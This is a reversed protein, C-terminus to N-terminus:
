VPVAFTKGPVVIGGLRTLFGDIQDSESGMLVVSASRAVAEEHVGNILASVVAPNKREAEDIWCGDAHLLSVMPWVAVLRGDREVVLVDADLHRMPVIADALWTKQLAQWEDRGLFRRTIM